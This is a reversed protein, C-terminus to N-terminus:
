ESPSRVIEAIAGLAEIIAEDRVAQQQLLFELSQLLETNTEGTADVSKAVAAAAETSVAQLSALDSSLETQLEDIESRVSALAADMAEADKPVRRFETYGIQVATLVVSLIVALIGIRIAVRASRSNEEAERSFKDLFLASASQISSMVMLADEGFHVIAQLRESMDALRENTEHAPDRMATLARTHAHSTKLDIPKSSLYTQIANNSDLIEKAVRSFGANKSGLLGSLNKNMESFIERRRVRQKENEAELVTLFFEADSQGEPKELEKESNLSKSQELFQRSFDNIDGETFAELEGETASRSSEGEIKPHTKCIVGILARVAEIPDSIEGSSYKEVEEVAKM